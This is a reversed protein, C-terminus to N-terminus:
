CWASPGGVPGTPGQIWSTRIAASYPRFTGRKAFARLAILHSHWAWGLIQVADPSWALVREVLSPNRIGFFHHTGPDAAINKVLEFEYGETLPIDWAVPRRFGHDHAAADALRWTFFVKVAIDERKALRQYLPAFYQIPHSVIIALRIQKSAEPADKRISRSVDCRGDLSIM